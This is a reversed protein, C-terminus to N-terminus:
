SEWTQKEKRKLASLYMGCSSKGEDLECPKRRPRCIGTEGEARVHDCLFPSDIDGCDWFACTEGRKSPQNTM